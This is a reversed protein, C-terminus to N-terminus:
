RRRVSFPPYRYVASLPLAAVWCALQLRRPLRQRWALDAVLTPEGRLRVPNGTALHHERWAGPRPTLGVRALVARCTGEHDVVFDEYRIRV